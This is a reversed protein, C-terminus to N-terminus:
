PTHPRSTAGGVTLMLKVLTWPLTAIFTLAVTATLVYKMRTNGASPNALQFVSVTPELAWAVRDVRM